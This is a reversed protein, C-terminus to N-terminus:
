DHLSGRPMTAGKLRVYQAELDRKTVGTAGSLKAVRLDAHRLNADSLEAYSLNAVRVTASSLAARTLVAYRLDAYSLDAFSLDAFSLDAHRLKAYSLDAGRLTTESLDADELTAHSLDADSLDADSLDADSLNLLRLNADSLDANDLNVIPNGKRILSSEYLFQVVSRKRDPGLRGLATLTRARALTRVESDGGSNRLKKELILDSMQDLYAQLAEDQARQVALEREAEARQDEIQQQRADQQVTFLFGIGALALPVILLQLWDWLTKRPRFEVDEHKPLEAEGLGTWQYDYGIRILCWSAGIVVLVAVTRIGWLIARNDIDGAFFVAIASAILSALLVVVVVRPIHVRPIHVRRTSEKEAATANSPEKDQEVPAGHKGM